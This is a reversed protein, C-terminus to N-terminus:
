ALRTGDEIRGSSGDEGVVVDGVATVGSGFVWDGKVVFSSAERLSPAGAPFREEFGSVLKYRKDLDVFPVADPLQRLVARDDLEYCDSRLVLLDNTTKV